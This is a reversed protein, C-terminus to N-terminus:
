SAFTVKGVFIYGDNRITKILRPNRPDDGLKRRVRGIRVDVSRDFAPSNSEYVLDLLRDRSLVRNPHTVFAYVLKYEGSTLAVPAGAADFLSRSAVDLTFGAFQFCERRVPVAMRPGAAARANRRLVSRVRAVIERPEFPKAVYDDAGLELGVVRDTLDARGSVIIIGCDYMERIRRMLTLGDTGQLGVDMIVLDCPNQSLMNVLSDGSTHATVAYGNACLNTQLVSRTDPDTEVIALNNTM